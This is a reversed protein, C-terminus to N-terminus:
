DEAGQPPKDVYKFVARLPVHHHHNLSKMEDPLDKLYIGLMKNLVTTNGEEIRKMAFSILKEKSNRFCIDRVNQVNDGYQPDAKIWLYHTRSTIGAKKAAETINGSFVELYKLMLEKQTATRELNRNIM